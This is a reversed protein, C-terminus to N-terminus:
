TLVVHAVCAVPNNCVREREKDREHTNDSKAVSSQSFHEKQVPKTALQSHSLRHIRIRTLSPPPPPNAVIAGSGRRMKTWSWNSGAEAQVGHIREVRGLDAEERGVRISIIGVRGRRKTAMIMRSGPNM